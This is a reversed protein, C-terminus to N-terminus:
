SVQSRLTETTTTSRSCMAVPRLKPTGASATLSPSLSYHDYGAEIAQKAYQKIMEYVHPNDKHYKNFAKLYKDELRNDNTAQPFDFTQQQATQM